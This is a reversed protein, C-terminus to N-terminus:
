LLAKNFLWQGTGQQVMEYHIDVTEASDDAIYKVTFRLTTANPMMWDTINQVSLCISKDHMVGGSLMPLYTTVDSDPVAFSKLRNIDPNNLAPVALTPFFPASNSEPPSSALGKLDRICSSLSIFSTITSAAATVAKQIGPDAIPANILQDIKIKQNLSIPDAASIPHNPVPLSQSKM